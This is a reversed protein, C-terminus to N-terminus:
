SERERPPPQPLASQLMENMPGSGMMQAFASLSSSLEAPSMEEGRQLRTIMDLGTLSANMVNDLAGSAKMDWTRAHGALIQVYECLAGITEDDGENKAYEVIEVIGYAHFLANNDDIFDLLGQNISAYHPSLQEHFKQILATHAKLKDEQELHALAKYVVQNKSLETYCRLKHDDAYDCLVEIFEAFTEHFKEIDISTDGTTRQCARITSEFTSSPIQSLWQRAQDIQNTENSM